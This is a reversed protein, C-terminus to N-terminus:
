EAQKRDSLYPLLVAGADTIDANCTEVCFGALAQQFRNHTRQQWGDAQKGVGQAEAFLNYAAYIMLNAVAEASMGADLLPTASQEIHRLADREDPRYDSLSKM